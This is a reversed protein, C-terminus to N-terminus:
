TSYLSGLLLRDYEGRVAAYCECARTEVKVRDIIKIRGRGREILSDRQLQGVAQTISERRVGLLRSIADQAILLEAFRLRDVTMLLWRCM